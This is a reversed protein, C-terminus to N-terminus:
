RLIFLNPRSNTCPRNLHSPERYIVDSPWWSPYNSDPAEAPTIGHYSGFKRRKPEALTLWETLIHRLPNVKLEEFRAIFYQVVANEDGINFSFTQLNVVSPGPSDEDDGEQDCADLQATSRSRKPIHARSLKSKKKILKRAKLRM